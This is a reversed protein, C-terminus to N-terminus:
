TSPSPSPITRIPSRRTNFEDQGTFAQGVLTALFLAGFFLALGNSRAWGM